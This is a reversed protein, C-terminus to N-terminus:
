WSLEFEYDSPGRNSDRVEVVVTYDNDRSPQQIIRMDGRGRIKNLRVTTRRYPLPSSFNYSGDSYPNGSIALVEVSSSQVKIQATDDVTGSWHMTGSSSGGGPGGIAGGGGFNLNRQIDSITQHIDSILSRQRGVRDARKAEDSLVTTADQLESRSRRDRVLRQFLAASANLQQDQFLAEAEARGNRSSSNYAQYSRNALDRTQSELRDALDGTRRSFDGQAMMSPVFLLM